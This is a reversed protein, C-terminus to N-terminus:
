PYPRVASKRRIFLKKPPATPTSFEDVMKIGHVLSLHKARRKSYRDVVERGRVIRRPRLEYMGKYKGTCRVLKTM